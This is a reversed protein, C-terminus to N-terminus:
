PPSRKTEEADFMALAKPMLSLKMPKVITAAPVERGSSAVDTAAAKFFSGSIATPFITPLLRNLIKKMRPVVAVTVGIRIWPTVGRSKRTIIKAATRRYIKETSNPCRTILRKSPAIRDRPKM